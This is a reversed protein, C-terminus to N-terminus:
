KDDEGRKDNLKKTRSLPFLNRIVLVAIIVAILIVLLSFLGTPSTLAGIIAGTITAIFGGNTPTQPPPSAQIPQPSSSPQQTTQTPAEPEEIVFRPSGRARGGTETIGTQIIKEMIMFTSFHPTFASYEYFLGNLNPPSTQLEVWNTGELVYLSVLSPNTVKDVPVKFNITGNSSNTNIELFKIVKGTNPPLSVGFPVVDFVSVSVFVEKQLGTISALYKSVEPNTPVYTETVSGVTDKNEIGHIILLIQKTYTKSDKTLTVPILYNGDELKIETLNSASANIDFISLDIDTVTFNLDLKNWIEQFEPKSELIPLVDNLINKINIQQVSENIINRIEDKWEEKVEGYGKDSLISYNTGNKTFIIHTPSQESLPNEQLYNNINSIDSLNSLRSDFSGLILEFVNKTSLWGSGSINLGTINIVGVKITPNEGSVSLKKFQPYYSGREIEVVGNIDELIKSINFSIDLNNITIGGVSKNQILINQKDWSRSSTDLSFNLQSSNQGITIIIPTSDLFNQFEDQANISGLSFILITLSFFFFWFKNKLSM